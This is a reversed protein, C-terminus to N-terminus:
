KWTARGATCYKEVNDWFLCKKRPFIVSCLIDRKIKGLAITQFM